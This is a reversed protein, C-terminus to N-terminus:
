PIFKSKGKTYAQVTKLDVKSYLSRERGTFVSERFWRVRYM